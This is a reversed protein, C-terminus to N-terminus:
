WIRLRPGLGTCHLDFSTAKRESLEDFFPLIAVFDFDIVIMNGTVFVSNGSVQQINYGIAGPSLNIRLLHRQVVTSGVQGKKKLKEQSLNM